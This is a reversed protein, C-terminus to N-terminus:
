VYLIWHRSYLFCLGEGNSLGVTLCQESFHYTNKTLSMYIVDVSHTSLHM